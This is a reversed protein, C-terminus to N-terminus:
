SPLAQFTLRIVNAAKKPNSLPLKSDKGKQWKDSSM